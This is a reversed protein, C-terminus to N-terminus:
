TKDDKKLLDLSQQFESENIKFCNLDSFRQSCFIFDTSQVYKTVPLAKLIDYIININNNCPCPYSISTHIRRRGMTQIINHLQIIKIMM